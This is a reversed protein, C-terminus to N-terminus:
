LPERAEPQFTTVHQVFPLVLTDQWSTGILIERPRARRRIIIKRADLPLDLQDAKSRLRRRIADDSLDPAVRAQAKMADLMQYYRLYKGGIDVGYYAGVALLLVIFLLGERGGRRRRRAVM